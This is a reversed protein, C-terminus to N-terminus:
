EQRRRCRLECRAGAAGGRRARPVQVGAAGQRGVPDARRAERKARRHCMRVAARACIHAAAGGVGGAGPGRAERAAAPLRGTRRPRCAGGRRRQGGRRRGRRRRAARLSLARDRLARPRLDARARDARAAQPARPARRCAHPRPRLRRRRRRRLPLLGLPHRRAQRANRRPVLGPPLWLTLVAM